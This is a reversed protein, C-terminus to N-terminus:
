SSTGNCNSNICWGDMMIIVTGVFHQEPSESTWTNSSFASGTRPLVWTFRWCRVWKGYDGGKEGGTQLTTAPAIFYCFLIQLLSRLAAIEPASTPWASLFPSCQMSSIIDTAQEPRAPKCRLFNVGMYSIWQRHDSTPSLGFVSHACSMWDSSLNKNIHVNHVKCSEQLVFM